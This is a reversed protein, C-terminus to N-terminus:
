ESRFLRRAIQQTDNNHLRSRRGRRGRRGRRRSNRSSHTSDSPPYPPPINSFKFSSNRIRRFMRPPTTSRHLTPMSSSSISNHSNQSGNSSFYYNSPISSTPTSLPPLLSPSSLSPTSPPPPSLPPAEKRFLEPYKELLEAEEKKTFICEIREIDYVTEREKIGANCHLKGIGYVFPKKAVTPYSINSKKVNLTIPIKSPTEGEGNINEM